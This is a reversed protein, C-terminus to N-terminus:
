ERWGVEDPREPAGMAAACCRAFVCPEITFVADTAPRPVRPELMAYPALLAPSILRVRLRPMASLGSTRTLATAGPSTSVGHVCGHGSSRLRWYM